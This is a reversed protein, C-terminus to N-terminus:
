FFRPIISIFHRWFEWTRGDITRKFTYRCSRRRKESTADAVAKAGSTMSLNMNTGTDGDPVPFVNLSNVFEANVQLRAAGAQVMEQFQSASINTVKM